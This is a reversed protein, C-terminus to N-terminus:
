PSSIAMSSLLLAPAGTSTGWLKWTSKTHFDVEKSLYQLLQQAVLHLVHDDLALQGLAEGGLAQGVEVVGLHAAWRPNPSGGEGKSSFIWWVPRFTTLNHALLLSAMSEGTEKRAAGERCFASTIQQVQTPVPSGRTALICNREMRISSLVCAVSGSHM